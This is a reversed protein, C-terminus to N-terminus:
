VCMIRILTCTCIYVHVHTYTVFVNHWVRNQMEVNAGAKVLEVVVETAGESAAMTLASDGKQTIVSMTSMTHCVCQYESYVSMM